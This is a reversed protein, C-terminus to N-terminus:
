REIRQFELGTLIAFRRDLLRGLLEFRQEHALQDFAHSLGGGFRAQHVTVRAFVHGSVHEVLLHGHLHGAQGAAQAFGDLTLQGQLHAIACFGGVTCLAGASCAHRLSLL